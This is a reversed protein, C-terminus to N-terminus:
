TRNEMADRLVRLSEHVRTEDTTMASYPELIVAGQYGRKELTCMLARWDVIGRGPLFLEGTPAYDLVHIHRLADGMADLMAYPDTGSQFAQKTDLVFHMDPLLDRIERIHEPLSAACWSVNEWLVEMGHDEACQQMDHMVPKLRQIQAPTIRRRIMGPGHFVYYSAGLAEGAACVGDFLHLADQRQRASAAFLDGEFQTGKPHVSACPLHGLRERVCSGFAATYESFTELFIECTEIPFSLLYEAAEETELRGYFSASSMGLKM